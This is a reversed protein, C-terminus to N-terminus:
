IFKNTYKGKSNRQQTGKALRELTIYTITGDIERVPIKRKRSFLKFLGMM